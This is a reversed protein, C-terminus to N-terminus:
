FFNIKLQPLVIGSVIQDFALIDGAAGFECLKAVRRVEQIFEVASQDPGQCLAKFHACQCAADLQPDFLENLLALAADYVSLTTEKTPRDVGPQQEDKTACLYTSLREIGLANLLLAKKHKLMADRAAADIYVQLVPRWQRWPIPPVGPCQLFLPPPIAANMIAFLANFLCNLSVCMDTPRTVLSARFTYFLLIPYLFYLVPPVTQVPASDVAHSLLSAARRIAQHKHIASERRWFTTDHTPCSARLCLARCQLAPRCSTHLLRYGLLFM